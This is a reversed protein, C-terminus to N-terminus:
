SAGIPVGGKPPISSSPHPEDLAAHNGERAPQSLGLQRLKHKAQWPPGISRAMAAPLTSTRAASRRRRTAFSASM